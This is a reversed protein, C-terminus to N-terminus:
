VDGAGSAPAAGAVDAHVRDFYARMVGLYRAADLLFADHGHPADIAAYNVPIRNDVLAKM